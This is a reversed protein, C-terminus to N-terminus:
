HLAGVGIHRPQVHAVVRLAERLVEHQRLCAVALVELAAVHEVMGEPSWRAALRAGPIAGLQRLAELLLRLVEDIEGAPWHPVPEGLHFRRPLRCSRPSYPTLQLTPLPSPVAKLVFLRSDHATGVM